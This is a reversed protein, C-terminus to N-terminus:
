KDTELVFEYTSSEYVEDIHEDSAAYVANDLEKLDSCVPLISYRFEYANKRMLVFAKHNHCYIGVYNETVFSCIRDYALGEAVITTIVKAM